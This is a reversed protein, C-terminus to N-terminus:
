RLNAAFATVADLVAARADRHPSHRAGPLVLTQAAPIRARLRRLQELTGYEDADGQIALVPCRVRDAYEEINWYRFRADLWIDNWGRFAGDVDEHYRALRDRLATTEWATKAAAISGISVDEVFLHPAELVLATAADPFTGAYILAISAGDSHGFLIPRELALAALLAPLVQQAERHMYEPERPAELRSSRGYGARSYAVITRGTAAALYEPFDKWMAVSGLGEHLLVISARQAEGGIRVTELREGGLEVERREM